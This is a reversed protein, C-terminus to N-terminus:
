LYGLHEMALASAVLAATESKLIRAGLTAFDFESTKLTEIETETWGRESGIALVVSRPRTYGETSVTAVAEHHGPSMHMMSAITGKGRYPDFALRRETGTIDASGSLSALARALTWETHVEPLRPSAAQAAGELLAARWERNKFFTSQTYSKEGLETGCMVIGGVGLSTLDKLIRNAQIPRPFGLVLTVPALPPAEREPEFALAVGEDGTSLIRAQGIMGDTTGALLTDGPGKRLISMIHITRKDGPPLPASLEEPELILM